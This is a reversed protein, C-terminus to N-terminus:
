LRERVKEPRKSAEAIQFINIKCCILGICPVSLCIKVTLCLLFTYLYWSTETWVKIKETCKNIIHLRLLPKGHTFCVSWPVSFNFKLVLFYAKHILFLVSRIYLYLQHIQHLCVINLSSRCVHFFFDRMM